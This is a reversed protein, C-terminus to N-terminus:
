KAEAKAKAKKSSKPKKIKEEYCYTSLGTIDQNSLVGKEILAYVAKDKESNLGRKEIVEKIKQFFTNVKGPNSIIISSGIKVGTESKLFAWIYGLFHNGFGNNIKLGFADKAFDYWVVHSRGEVPIKNGDADLKNEKKAKPANKKLRSFKEKIQKRKLDYKAKANILEEKEIKMLEAKTYTSISGLVKVEEQILLNKQKIIDIYKESSVIEESNIEDDEENNDDNTISLTEEEPVVIPEEKVSEIVVEEKEPETATVAKTGKKNATKSSM